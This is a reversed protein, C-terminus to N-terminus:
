FNIKRVGLIPLYSEHSFEARQPIDMVRGKNLELNAGEIVNESAQHTAINPNSQHFSELMNEEYELSQRLQLKASSTRTARTHASSNQSLIRINRLACIRKKAEKNRKYKEYM